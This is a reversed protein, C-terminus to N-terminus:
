DNQLHIEDAEDTMQDVFVFKYAVSLPLHLHNWSGISNWSLLEPRIVLRGEGGFRLFGPL